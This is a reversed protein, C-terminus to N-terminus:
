YSHLQLMVKHAWVSPILDDSTVAYRFLVTGTTQKDM